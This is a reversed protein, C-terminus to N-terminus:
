RPGQGFAGPHILRAIDRAAQGLGPGPIEVSVPLMVSRV